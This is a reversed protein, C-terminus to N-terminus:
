ISHYIFYKVSIQLEENDELRTQSIIIPANSSKTKKKRGIRPIMSGDPKNIWNSYAMPDEDRKYFLLKTTFIILPATLTSFITILLFSLWTSDM